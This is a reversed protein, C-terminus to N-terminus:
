QRDDTIVVTHPDLLEGHGFKLDVAARDVGDSLEKALRNTVRRQVDLWSSWNTEILDPYTGLLHSEQVREYHTACARLARVAHCGRHIGTGGIRDSEVLLTNLGARAAQLAADKGASGSGIVTVQYQYSM